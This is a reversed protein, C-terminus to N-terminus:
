DLFAGSPSGDLIAVCNDAESEIAACTQTQASCDGKGQAKLCAKDFKEECKGLKVSDPALNKHQAKAIVNMKCQVKKGAAKSIGQDCKSQALVVGEGALSLALFGVAVLISTRM